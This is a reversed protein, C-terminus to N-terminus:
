KGIDLGKFFNAIDQDTSQWPLGRARVVTNSDVYENKTSAIIFSMQFLDNSSNLLKGYELNLSGM